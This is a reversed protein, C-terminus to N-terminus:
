RTGIAAIDLACARGAGSMRDNRSFVVALSGRALMGRDRRSRQAKPHHQGFAKGANVALVEDILAHQREDEGIVGVIVPQALVVHEAGAIQATSELIAILDREFAPTRNRRAM